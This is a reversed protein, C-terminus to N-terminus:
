PQVFQGPTFVGKEVHAPIYRSGPAGGSFSSLVFFGALVCLLGAGTLTLWPYVLTIGPPLKRLRWWVMLQFVVFPFAFLALLIASFRPM